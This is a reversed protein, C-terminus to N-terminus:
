SDRITFDLKYGGPVVLVPPSIVIAVDGPSPGLAANSSGTSFSLGSTVTVSVAYTGPAACSVKAVVSSLADSAGIEYGHVYCQTINDSNSGHRNSSSTNGSAYVQTVILGTVIVLFLGIKWTM